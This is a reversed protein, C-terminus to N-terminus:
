SRRAGRPAPNRSARRCKQRRRFLDGEHPARRPSRAVEPHAKREPRRRLDSRHLTRRRLSISPSRPPSAAKTGAPPARPERNAPRNHPWRAGRCLFALQCRRCLRGRSHSPLDCPFIKATDLLGALVCSIPRRQHLDLLRRRCSFRLSVDWRSAIIRSWFSCRAMRASEPPTVTAGLPDTSHLCSRRDHFNKEDFIVGVAPASCRSISRRPWSTTATRLASSASAASALLSVKGNRIRSQISGPFLPTSRQRSSRARGFPSSINM